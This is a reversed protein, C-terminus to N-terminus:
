FNKNTMERKLTEIEAVSIRKRLVVKTETIKVDPNKIWADLTPPTIGLMRCAERKTVFMKKETEM